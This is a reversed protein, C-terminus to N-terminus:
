ITIGQAKMQSINEGNIFEGGNDTQIVATRNGTDAIFGEIIQILRGGAESKKKLFSCVTYRSAEDTVPMVYLAGQVSETRM